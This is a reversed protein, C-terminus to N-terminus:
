RYAAIERGWLADEADAEQWWDQNEAHYRNVALKPRLLQEYGALWLKLLADKRALRRGKNGPNICYGQKQLDNIVWAVTGLAVRAKDAIERYTDAVLDPNCLLAFIVQLGTPKFLRAPQTNMGDPRKNGKIFVFMTVANIYANGACDIFQLGMKKFRGAQEPNVYNTVLIYPGKKDALQAAVANDATRKVMAAFEARGPLGEKALVLRADERAGNFHQGPLITGEIGAIERLRELALPLLDM